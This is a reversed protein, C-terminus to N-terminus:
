EETVMAAFFFPSFNLSYKKLNNFVCVSFIGAKRREMINMFVFSNLQEKWSTSSFLTTLRLKEGHSPLVPHDSGTVSILAAAVRKEEQHRPPEYIPATPRV